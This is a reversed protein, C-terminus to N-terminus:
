IQLYRDVLNHEQLRRLGERIERARVTGVGEVAEVLAAKMYPVAEVAGGVAHHHAFRLMTQAFVPTPALAGAVVLVVGAVFQSWTILKM